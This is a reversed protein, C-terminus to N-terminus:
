SVYLSNFFYRHNLMIKAREFLEKCSSLFKNLTRENVKRKRRGKGGNNEWGYRKISWKYIECKRAQESMM